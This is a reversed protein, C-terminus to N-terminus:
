EEMVEGEDEERLRSREGEEERRDGSGIFRRRLAERIVGSVRTGQEAGALPPFAILKLAPVQSAAALAHMCAYTHTHTHTHTLSLSLANPLLLNCM